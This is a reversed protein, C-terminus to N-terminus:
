QRLRAQGMGMATKRGVAAFTAFHALITAIRAQESDPFQYRVWGQAGIEAGSKMKLAHTKIEFASVLGQWTISPFHLSQPAFTNWRRLLSGFVWEPLPFPQVHQEQKFSTPSLLKLEVANQAPIRALKEFSSSELIEVEKGVQCSVDALAIEGGLNESLGWLLPALIERRLLSIRLHLCRASVPKIFLTAPVTDQQHIQQALVADAASLWRFFQAHIARGLSSPLSKKPFISVQIVHLEHSDLEVGSVDYHKGLWEVATNQTLQQCVSQMLSPYLQPQCLIPMAKTVGNKRALPIWVPSQELSPLWSALPVSSVSDIAPQLVVNLASVKTETKQTM